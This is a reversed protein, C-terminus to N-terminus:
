EKAAADPAPPVLALATGTEALALFGADGLVITVRHEPDLDVGGGPVFDTDTVSGDAARIAISQMPGSYRFSTKTM